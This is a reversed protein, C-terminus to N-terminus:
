KGSVYEFALGLSSLLTFDRKLIAEHGQARLIEDDLADYDDLVGLSVENPSTGGNIADALDSKESVHQSVPQAM